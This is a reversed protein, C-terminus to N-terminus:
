GRRDVGSPLTTVRTGSQAARQRQPVVTYRPDRASEQGAKFVAWRQLLSGALLLGGAALAASRQRGALMMFAMGTATGVAAAKAFGSAGKAYPEGVLEGLHREMVRAAALELAGGLVAMRRAPGADEPPTMLVAAAGASAAASGIFVFPLERRAGHWVPVSTDALLAATYVALPPGLFAAIGQAALKVRPLIGLIECGAALALAGGIGSLIWSGVSMPSTVKFVRLMHYFREPRGLDSILLIPSVAIGAFAAFTASRALRPYGCVNAAFALVSSAGALGGSFFYIPVEPKWVPPRIIPQGYYSEFDAGAGDTM